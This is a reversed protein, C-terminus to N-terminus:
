YCNMVPIQIKGSDRNIINLIAKITTTKEAGNEEIFGM